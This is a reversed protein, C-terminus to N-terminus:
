LFRNKHEKCIVFNLFQIKTLTYYDIKQVM